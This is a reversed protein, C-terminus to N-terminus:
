DLEENINNFDAKVRSKGYDVNRNEDVKYDSYTKGRPLYDQVRSKEPNYGYNEYDVKNQDFSSM